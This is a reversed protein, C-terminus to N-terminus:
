FKPKRMHRKEKFILIKEKKLAFIEELTKGLEFESPILYIHNFYRPNIIMIRLCDECSKEDGMIDGSEDVIRVVKNKLVKYDLANIV